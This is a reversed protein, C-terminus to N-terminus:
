QRFKNFYHEIGLQDCQLNHLHEESGYVSIFETRNKEINPEGKIAHQYLHHAPCLSICLMDDARKSTGQGTRPHHMTPRSYVGKYHKCVICGLDFLVSLYEKRANM